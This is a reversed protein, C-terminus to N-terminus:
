FFIVLILISALVQVRTMSTALLVLKGSPWTRKNSISMVQLFYFPFTSLPDTLCFGPWHPGPSAHLWYPGSLTNFIQSGLPIPQLHWVRSHVLGLISNSSDVCLWVGRTRDPSNFSCFRRFQVKRDGEETPRWCPVQSISCFCAYFCGLNVLSM